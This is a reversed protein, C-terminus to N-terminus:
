SCVNHLSEVYNCMQSCPQLYSNNEELMAGPCPRCYNVHRCDKCSVVDSRTTKKLKQYLPSESFIRTIPRPDTLVNGFPVNRFALCPVLTGDALVTAIGFMSSCLSEKLRNNKTEKDYVRMMGKRVKEDMQDFFKRYFDTTTTSEYNEKIHKDPFTKAIGISVQFGQSTFYSKTEGFNDVNQELLNIIVKVNVGADRLQQASKLAKSFAGKKKVFGDHVDPIHSFFSFRISTFRDSNDSLFGLHEKTFATGNTLMVIDFFGKKFIHTLIEIIDDRYFIEGGTLMLTLVGLEDIRNVISKVEPLELQHKKQTLYCYDCAINCKQTLEICASRLFGRQVLADLKKGIASEIM